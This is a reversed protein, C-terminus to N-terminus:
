ENAMSELEEMSKIVVDGRTLQGRSRDLMALYDENRQSKKLQNYEKESIMVVNQNRPRSIVITEGNIVKDCWGKFNDRINMSKVALM